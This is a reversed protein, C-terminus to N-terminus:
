STAMSSSQRGGAITPARCRRRAISSRTDIEQAAKAAGLAAQTGVGGDVIDWTVNGSEVMARVRGATPGTGDMVVPIGTKATFPEGWAAQYAQEADGGWMAFVIEKAAARAHETGGVLATAGLLASLHLLERRNLTGKKVREAAISFADRLYGNNDTM